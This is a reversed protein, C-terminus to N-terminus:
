HSRLPEFRRHCQTSPFNEGNNENHEDFVESFTRIKKPNRYTSSTRHMARAVWVSRTKSPRVLANTARHPVRDHPVISEFHEISFDRCVKRIKTWSRSTVEYQWLIITFRVVTAWIFSPDEYFSTWEAARQLRETTGSVKRSPLSAM